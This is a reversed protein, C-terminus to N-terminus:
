PLLAKGKLSQQYAHHSDFYKASHSRTARPSSNMPSTREEEFTAPMYLTFQSMKQFMVKHDKTFTIATSVLKEFLAYVRGDEWTAM